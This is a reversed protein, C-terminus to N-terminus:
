YMCLKNMRIVTNIHTLQSNPIFFIPSIHKGLTFKTRINGKRKFCLSVSKYMRHEVFFLILFYALMGHSDRVKFLYYCSLM